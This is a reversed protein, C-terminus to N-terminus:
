RKARLLDRMTQEVVRDIADHERGKLERGDLDYLELSEYDTRVLQVGAQEALEVLPNGKRGHIWAAGLDVNAGGVAATHIRGGLRPSGELLLVRKGRRGLARACALGAMGGGIVIVDM